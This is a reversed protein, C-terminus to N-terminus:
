FEVGLRLDFNSYFLSQDGSFSNANHKYDFKYSHYQGYWYVGLFVHPTLEYAAGVSGDFTLEPSLSFSAGEESSSALPLQYRLMTELRLNKSTIKRYELGATLATMNNSSIKISNASLPVIFPMEHQQVGLKWLWQSKKTDSASGPRYITEASLAKWEYDGNQVSISSGSEAKGPTVNYGLDLGWQDDLFFGARFVQSPSKIKGFNITSTGPVTQSYSTFNVGAGVWIWFNNTLLNTRPSNQLYPVPTHQNLSEQAPQSNLEATPVGTTDKATVEGKPVLESKEESAVNRSYTENALRENSILPLEVIQGPKLNFSSPAEPVRVSVEGSLARLKTKLDAGAYVQVESNKGQIELKKGRIAVKTQDKILLRFNGQVLNPINESKVDSFEIQSKAGVVVEGNDPLRLQAASNDGVLLSDGATIAQHKKTPTWLESDSSRILIENKSNLILGRSSTPPTVLSGQTQFTDRFFEYGLAFLTTILLATVVISKSRLPNVWRFM